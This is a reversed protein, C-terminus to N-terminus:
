IGAKLREKEDILKQNYKLEELLYKYKKVLKSEAFGTVQKWWAYGISCGKCSVVGENVPKALLYVRANQTTPDVWSWIHLRSYFQTKTTKIKNQFAFATLTTNGSFFFIPDIDSEVTNTSYNGQPIDVALFWSEVGKARLIKLSQCSSTVGYNNYIMQRDINKYMSYNNASYAAFEKRYIERSAEECRKAEPAEVFYFDLKKREVINYGRNRFRKSLAFILKQPDIDNFEVLADESSMYVLNSYKFDVTKFSSICGYSSFGFLILVLLFKKM